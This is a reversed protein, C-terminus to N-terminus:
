LTARMTWSGGHEGIDAFGARRYLERAPNAAAVSLSLARFGDARARDMAARILRSGIGKRRHPLAVAMALEPTAEDVFGYGPEAAPFLRYWAAGAPAGDLEAVVGGDGPRGWAAHYRWLAPEALVQEIPERPWEPNWRAAEYLMARLFPADDDTAPRILM